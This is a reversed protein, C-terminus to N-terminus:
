ATSNISVNMVFIKIEPFTQASNLKPPSLICRFELAEQLFHGSTYVDLLAKLHLYRTKKSWYSIHWIYFAICQNFITLIRFQLIFNIFIRKSRYKKSIINRTQIFIWSWTLIAKKMSLDQINHIRWCILLFLDIALFLLRM